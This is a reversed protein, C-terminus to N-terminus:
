GATGTFPLRTLRPGDTSGDESLVFRIPAVRSLEALIERITHEITEAENHIPLVVDVDVVQAPESM